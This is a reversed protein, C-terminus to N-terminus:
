RWIVVTFFVASIIMVFYVGISSLSFCVIAIFSQDSVSDVTLQSLTLLIKLRHAGKAAYNSSGTANDTLTIDVEPTTLSETILFGVRATVNTSTNSLIVTQKACKVFNGRVFYVGEEVTVPDGVPVIPEGVFPVFEGVLEVSEGVFPVPDGVAEVPEGVM